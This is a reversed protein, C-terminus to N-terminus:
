NNGKLKVRLLNEAIKKLAIAFHKTYSLTFHLIGLKKCKKYYSYYFTFSAPLYQPNKKSFLVNLPNYNTNSNGFVDKSLLFINKSMINKYGKNAMKFSLIYDSFYHPAMHMNISLLDKLHAGQFVMGRGSVFDLEYTSGDEFYKIDEAKISEILFKQTVKPGLDMDRFSDQNKLQSGIIFGPYKKQVKMINKIYNAPVEVDVNILIVIDGDSVKDEIMKLGNHISKFWYWNSKGNLVSVKHKLDLDFCNKLNIENKKFSNVIIYNIRYKNLIGSTSNVFNKCETINKHIPLIFHIM